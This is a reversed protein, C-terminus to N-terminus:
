DRVTASATTWSCGRDNSVSSEVGCVSVYLIPVPVHSEDQPDEVSPSGFGGLGVHVVYREHARGVDRGPGTDPRARAGGTAARSRRGARFVCISYVCHRRVPLLRSAADDWLLCTCTTEGRVPESDSM